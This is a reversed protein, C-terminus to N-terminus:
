AFNRAEKLIGPVLIDNQEPIGNNEIQRIITRIVESAMKKEDQRIHTFQFGDESLYDEDICCVTLRDYDAKDKLFGLYRAIRYETCILSDLTRNKKLYAGIQDIRNEEVSDSFIDLSKENTIICEPMKSLNFKRVADHFGRNRELVSSTGEEPVTIFGIKTRGKKVLYETLTEMAKANDTRVSAVPIGDMMKDFLVIPFHDMVLKLIEMNYYKGHCPMIIMGRVNNSKLFAIEESEKKDDGYSFRVDLKYGAHDAIRDAEYLFDLGFCSSVHELVMGIRPTSDVFILSRPQVESQRGANNGARDASSLPVKQVFSGTGKIRNIYGEDRLKNLAHIVSITSAHFKEQIDQYPPLCDGEKLTGSVILDKLYEYIKKYLYQKTDM